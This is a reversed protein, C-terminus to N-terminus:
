TILRFRAASGLLVYWTFVRIRAGLADVVEFSVLRPGSAVFLPDYGDKENQQGSLSRVGRAERSPHALKAAPSVQRCQEVAYVVHLVWVCGWFYM